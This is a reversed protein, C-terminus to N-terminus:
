HSWELLSKSKTKEQGTPDCLTTYHLSIVQACESQQATSSIRTLTSSESNADNRVRGISFEEEILLPLFAKLTRELQAAEDVHFNLDSAPDYVHQAVRGTLHGVQSERALQGVHTSHPTSLVAPKTSTALQQAWLSDEIPLADSSSAAEM